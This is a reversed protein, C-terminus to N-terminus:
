ESQRKKKQEKKKIPEVNPNAFEKTAKVFSPNGRGLEAPTGPPVPNGKVGCANLFSLLIVISYARCLSQIKV